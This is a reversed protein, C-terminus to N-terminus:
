EKLSMGIKKNLLYILVIKTHKVMAKYYHKIKLISQWQRMKKLESQLHDKHTLHHISDPRGQTHPNISLLSKYIIHRVKKIIGHRDKTTQTKMNSQIM